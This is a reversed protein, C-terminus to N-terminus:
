GSHVEREAWETLVESRVMRRFAEYCHNHAGELWATIDSFELISNPQWYYDFDLILPPGSQVSVGLRGIPERYAFEARAATSAHSANPLAPWDLKPALIGSLTGTKIVNIYRLGLRVIHRVKGVRLYTDVAAAADKSFADFSTYKLANVTLGGPGVQILRGDESSFRHTVNLPSGEPLSGLLPAVKAADLETVTPYLDQVAAAMAGPLLSFSLGARGQVEFVVEVLPSRKLKEHGQHM